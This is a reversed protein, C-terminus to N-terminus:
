LFIRESSQVSIGLSYAKRMYRLFEKYLRLFIRHLAYKKAHMNDEDQVNLILSQVYWGLRLKCKCTALIYHKNYQSQCTFLHHLSIDTDLALRGFHQTANKETNKEMAKQYYHGHLNLYPILTIKRKKNDIMVHTCTLLIYYTEESLIVFYIQQQIYLSWTFSSSCYFFNNQIDFQAQEQYHIQMYLIINM